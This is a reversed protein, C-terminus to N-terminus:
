KGLAKRFEELSDANLAYESFRKLMEYDSIEEVRVAIDEPVAEPAALRTLITKLIDKRDEVLGEVLGEAHGEAHGQSREQRLMEELVMYRAEMERSSKIQKVSDQLQKVYADEYDDTCPLQYRSFNERKLIADAPLGYLPRNELKRFRVAKKVFM